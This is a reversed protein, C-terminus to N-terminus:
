YTRKESFGSIIEMLPIEIHLELEKSKEQPKIQLMNYDTQLRFGMWTKLDADNEYNIQWGRLGYQKEMIRIGFEFAKLSAQLYVTDRLLTPIIRM